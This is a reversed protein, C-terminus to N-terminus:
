VSETMKSSALIGPGIQAVKSRRWPSKCLMHRHHCHFGFYFSGMQPPCVPDSHWSGLTRTLFTVLIRGETQARALVETDSIGPSDSQVWAVDHGQERLAAVADGPFNEDALIRM